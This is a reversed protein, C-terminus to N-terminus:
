DIRSAGGGSWQSDQVYIDSTSHQIRRREQLTELQLERMLRSVSSKRDYTSTVWRTETRIRLKM